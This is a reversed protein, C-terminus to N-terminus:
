PSPVCRVAARDPTVVARLRGEWPADSCTRDGPTFTSSGDTDWYVRVWIEGCPRTQLPVHIAGDKVLADRPVGGRALVRPEPSLQAKSFLGYEYRVPERDLAAPPLLVEAPCGEFRAVFVSGREYETAYGREKFVSFDDARGGLVHIGEFPMGDAALETLVAARLKPDSDFWKSQAIDLPHSDPRPPRKAGVFEIAHISPTGNFMKTGIGGHEVLYLLPTNYALLARPVPGAAADRPTACTWDIGIPLRPGHFQLPLDLGALQDACGAALQRHLRASILASVLSLATLLPVLARRARATLAEPARLLALALVLALIGFRPAFCQWGPIHLPTVVTLVFFALALWAFARETASARGRRARAFFAVLAVVALALVLWARLEPGPVFWRSIERARDGMAWHFGQQESESLRRGFMTLVLLGAAPAGVLSMKGAERLRQGKPANALAIAFVVLGTMGATFIHCVGQLLLLLSLVARRWLTTPPRWLTFALTWLGFTTGAVFPFFGMYLSWSLAVPFGLLATARRSPDLSLVVAAFGWAFGLTLLSLAIRLAPRWPLFSELPAFLLAFGKGAYQPLIRYYEPYPSGPDSFHNEIHASLVHQPGDNTPIYPVVWIAYVLGLSAILMCALWAASERKM